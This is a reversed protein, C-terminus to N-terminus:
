NSFTQVMRQVEPLWPAFKEKEDQGASDGRTGEWTGRRLRLHSSRTWQLAELIVPFASPRGANEPHGWPSKKRYLRCYPILLETKDWEQSAIRSVSFRHICCSFILAKETISPSYMSHMWQYCPHTCLRQKSSSWLRHIVLCAKHRIHRWAWLKYNCLNHFKVFGSYTMDSESYM